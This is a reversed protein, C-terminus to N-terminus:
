TEQGGREEGSRNLVELRFLRGERWFGDDPQRLYCGSSGGSFPSTTEVGISNKTLVSPWM